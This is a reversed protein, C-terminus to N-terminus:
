LKHGFIYSKFNSPLDLNPLIQQGNLRRLIFLRHSVTYVMKDLIENHLDHLVHLRKMPSM